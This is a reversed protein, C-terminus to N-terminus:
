RRWATERQRSSVYHCTRSYLILAAPETDVGTKSESLMIYHILPLLCVKMYIENKYKNNNMDM